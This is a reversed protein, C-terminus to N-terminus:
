ISEKRKLAKVLCDISCFDYERDKWGVTHMYTNAVGKKKVRPKELWTSIGHLIGGYMVLWNEARKQKEDKAVKKCIECETIEKEM